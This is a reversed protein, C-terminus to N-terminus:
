CGEIRFLRADPGEEDVLVLHDSPDLNQIGERDAAADPDSFVNRDGFDLVYSVGLSQVVACVRPDTDIDNLHADIYTEDEDRAGFVHKELVNRGAIAYALSVGTWPSGAIVADSPTTDDLRSILAAEDTSLLASADNMTYSGRAATAMTTVNPGIAVLFLAAAAVTALAAKVLHPSAAVFKVRRVADVVVLAGYTAVPIGAIPLLAALRYPDNYWPNTVMERLLTDVPTGSVLIFMFGAVAAPILVPLHAPRRVVAIIGIALLLATALTIPYARPSLLLAEGIAQATSQWPGWRSMGWNTRSFRWLLLGTLLLLLAAAGNFIWARRSKNQLARRALEFLALFVAFAFLALFANPHGLGIGACVVALLVIHRTITAVGRLRLLEWVIAIGAPLVAYGMANPYLVGFDFLLIPFAGFATSLAATAAIAAARERFITAGLAMASAPWAIAGIAINAANVSLPISAGTTLATLSSLSHWANPYFPIDTTTGINLASANATDVAFRVTNLHVIADFTQSISEPTMFVYTLQAWLAVAALVLGGVTAVIRRPSPTLLVETGVWRRIAYAALAAVATLGIVPIWSWSMGVLPALTASVALIAVSVAPAMLLLRLRHWGWGALVIVLGPIILAATAVLFAPVASLWVESM